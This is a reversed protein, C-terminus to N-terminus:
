LNQLNLKKMENKMEINLKKKMLKQLVKKNETFKESLETWLSEFNKNKNKELIQQFGNLIREQKAEPTLTLYIERTLEKYKQNQKIKENELKEIKEEYSTKKKKFVWDVIKNRINNWPIAIFGLVISVGIAIPKIAVIGLIM